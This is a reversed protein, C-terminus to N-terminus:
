RITRSVDSVIMTAMRATPIMRMRAKKITGGSVARRNKLEIFDIMMALADIPAVVDKKATAIERWRRETWPMAIEVDPRTTAIRKAKQTIPANKAGM